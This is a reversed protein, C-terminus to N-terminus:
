LLASWPEKLQRRMRHQKETPALDLLVTFQKASRSKNDSLEISFSLYPETVLFDSRIRAFLLADRKELKIVLPSSGLLSVSNQDLELTLQDSGDINVIPRSLDLKRRYGLGGDCRGNWGRVRQHYNGQLM